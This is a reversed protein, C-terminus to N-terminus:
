CNNNTSKKIIAVRIIHPLVENYHQNANRKFNTINLMKEHAEQADTHRGQVFTQKPRGDMTKTPNNKNNKKINCQM